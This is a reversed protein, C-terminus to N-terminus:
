KGTYIVVEGDGGGPRAVHAVLVRQGPAPQRYERGASRVSWNSLRDGLRVSAHRTV